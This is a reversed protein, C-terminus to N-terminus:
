WRRSGFLIGLTLSACTNRIRYDDNDAVDINAIGAQYQARLFGGHPLMFGAFLQGGADFNRYDDNRDNDGFHLDESTSTSSGFYPGYKVKGGIAYAIYPGGGMFFRIERPRGFTFVLNLPVELYDFTARRSADEQTLIVGNTPNEDLRYGKKTYFLGPQISFHRTVGIDILGGIKLGAKADASSHEDRNGRTDNLRVNSLNVGAEPGISIHQANVAFCGAAAAVSLLLKKMMM